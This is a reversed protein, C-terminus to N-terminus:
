RVRLMGTMPHFVCTYPFEGKRRATYRWSKGPQIVKSDFGRGSTTATHALIDKNVWVVSDGVNLVLDAPSFRAADITVTHTVPTRAAAEADARFGAASTGLVCVAAAVAAARWTM